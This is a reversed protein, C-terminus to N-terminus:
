GVTEFVMIPIHRKTMQQYKLYPPNRETAFAWLRDYEAGAAERAVVPIRKGKIALIAHPNQKLNLYWDAQNDRGWNSGVIIYVRQYKFYAIPVARDQGSRRGTTHLILIQQKGLKSGIRGRSIRLILTNISMFWKILLDKLPRRKVM